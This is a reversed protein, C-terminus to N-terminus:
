ATVSECDVDLTDILHRVAERDAEDSVRASLAVVCERGEPYAALTYITADEVGCLTWTQLKGSYSPRDYDDYPGVACTNAKKENLLLNTIEYDSFQTLAKSAVFYAGSQPAPGYWVDLSPATTISTPLDEGAYYSWTGTGTGEKESDEGIQVGWSPPVEAALGGDPTEILNYGPAPGADEAPQPKDTKKPGSEEVVKPEPEKERQPEKPGNTSPKEEAASSDKEPPDTTLTPEEKVAANGSQPTSTFAVAVSIAFIVLLPLTTVAILTWPAGHTPIPQRADLPISAGCTDCYRRGSSIKSHCRRCTIHRDRRM